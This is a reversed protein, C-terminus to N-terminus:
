AASTHFESNSNLRPRRALDTSASQRIRTAHLLSRSPPRRWYRGVLALRRRSLNCSRMMPPLVSQCRTPLASKQAGVTKTANSSPHLLKALQTQGEGEKFGFGQCRGCWGGSAGITMLGTMWGPLADTNRWADLLMFLNGARDRGGVTM